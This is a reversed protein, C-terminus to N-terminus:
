QDPEAALALGDDVFSGTAALWLALELLTAAALALALELLTAAALALALALLGAGALALLVLDGAPLGFGTTDM